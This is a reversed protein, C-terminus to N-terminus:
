LQISLTFEVSDVNGGASDRQQEQWAIKIDYVNGNKTVTGIGSPLGGINFNKAEETLGLEGVYYGQKIQQNWQYGDLQAIQAVTCSPPCGPPDNVIATISDYNGASVATQNSRMREAMDYAYVTALTRFQSNNINKLSVMQLFALGLLGIGLILVAILVELLSSGQQNRTMLRKQRNTQNHKYM